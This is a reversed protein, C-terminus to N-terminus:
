LSDLTIVLKNEKVFDEVEKKILFKKWNLTQLIFNIYFFLQKKFM